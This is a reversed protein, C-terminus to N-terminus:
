LYANMLYSKLSCSCMTWHALVSLWVLGILKPEQNLCCFQVMNGSQNSGFYDLSIEDQEIQIESM